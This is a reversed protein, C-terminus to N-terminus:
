KYMVFGLFKIYKEHIFKILSASKINEISILEMYNSKQQLLLKKLEKM